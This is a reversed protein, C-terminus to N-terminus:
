AMVALPNPQPPPRIHIYASISLHGMLKVRFSNRGEMQQSCCHRAPLLIDGVALLKIIQWLVGLYRWSEIMAKGKAKM